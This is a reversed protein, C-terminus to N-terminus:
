SGRQPQSQRHWHWTPTPKWQAQIYYYRALAKCNAATRMELKPRKVEGLWAAATGGRPPAGWGSVAREPWHRAWKRVCGRPPGRPGQTTHAGNRPLCPAPAVRLAAAVPSGCGGVVLSTGALRLPRSAQAQAWARVLRRALGVALLSCRSCMYLPQLSELCCCAAACRSCVAAVPERSGVGGLGPARWERRDVVALALDLPWSSRASVARAGRLPQPGCAPRRTGLQSARHQTFSGVARHRSGPLARVSTHHAIPLLDGGCQRVRAHSLGAWSNRLRRVVARGPGPGPSM